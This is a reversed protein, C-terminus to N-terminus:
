ADYAIHLLEFDDYIIKAWFAYGKASPHFLDASYYSDSKNFEKITPSYLDIYSINNKQALDEIIKNFEITRFNFYYNYPPLILSNSGIFPINIIYIKAKTEQM